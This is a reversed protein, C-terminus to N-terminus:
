DNLWKIDRIRIYSIDNTIKNNLKKCILNTIFDYVICTQMSPCAEGMIEECDLCSGNNVEFVNSDAIEFIKYFVINFNKQYSYKIQVRM